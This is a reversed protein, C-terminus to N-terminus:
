GRHDVMSLFFFLELYSRGDVNFFFFFLESCVFSIALSVPLRFPLRFSCAFCFLSIVRLREGSM